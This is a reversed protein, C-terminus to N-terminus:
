SKDTAQEHDAPELHEIPEGMMAEVLDIWAPLFDDASANGDKNKAIQMLRASADSAKKAGNPFFGHARRMEILEAMMATMSRALDQPDPEPYSAELLLVLEQNVSRKNADAVAKIRARLGDPLRLVIKDLFRSPGNAVMAADKALIRGRSFLNQNKGRQMQRMKACLQAM